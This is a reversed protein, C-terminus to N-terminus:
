RTPLTVALRRIEVEFADNSPRGYPPDNGLLELVAAHGRLPGAQRRAADRPRSPGGADADPRRRWVRRHRRGAAARRTGEDVLRGILYQADRVEYRVDALHTYGDACAVPNALRSEPTGCSGWLGRFTHTLV